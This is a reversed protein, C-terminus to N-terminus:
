DEWKHKPNRPMVIWFLIYALIGTGWVLSALIWLVRIIVPDVKLYEAIGGCVGGLIRENGSRYLRKGRPAHVKSKSKKKKMVDGSCCRGKLLVYLIGLFLFLWFILMLNMEIYFAIMTLQLSKITLNAIHMVSMVIWFFVTAKLAISIPSFIRYNRPSVKSLYSSYSFFVMLIFFLGMNGNIFDRISTVLGSGLIANVLSLLWVFVALLIIGVVSSLLPGIVGFTKHFWNGCNKGKREMRKGFREGIREVEEGFEEMRNEFKDEKTLPKKKKVSKKKPM